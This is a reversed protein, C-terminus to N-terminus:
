SSIISLTCPLDAQDCSRPFDEYLSFMCSCSTVHNAVFKRYNDLCPKETDNCYSLAFQTLKSIVAFKQMATCRQQPSPCPDKLSISWSQHLSSSLPIFSCLFSSSVSASPCPQDQYCHSAVCVVCSWCHDSSSRETFRQWGNDKEMCQWPKFAKTKDVQTVHNGCMSCPNLVIKMEGSQSYQRFVLCLDCNQFHDGNCIKLLPGSFLVSVPRCLSDHWGDRFKCCFMHLYFRFFTNHNILNIAM